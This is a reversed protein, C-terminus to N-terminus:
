PLRSMEMVAAVQAESFRHWRKRIEKRIDADTLQNRNKRRIKWTKILKAATIVLSDNLAVQVWYGHRFQVHDRLQPANQQNNVWTIIDFGEPMRRLVTEARQRGQEYQSMPEGISHASDDM